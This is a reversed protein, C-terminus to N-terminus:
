PMHRSSSNSGSDESNTSPGILENLCAYLVTTKGSGTPATIVADKGSRVAQTLQPIISYIPLQEKKM